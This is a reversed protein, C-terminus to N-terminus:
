DAWQPPFYCQNVWQPLAWQPVFSFRDAWQPLAWQPVVSLMTMSRGM